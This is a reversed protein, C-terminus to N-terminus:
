SFRASVENKIAVSQYGIIFDGLLPETHSVLPACSTGAARSLECIKWIGRQKLYERVLDASLMFSRVVGYM